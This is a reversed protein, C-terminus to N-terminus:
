PALRDIHWGVNAKLTYQFRDHLRNLHGQWFEFRHPVVRFGGWFPPCPVEKGKYLSELRAYSEELTKRSDLVRSQQSAWASLQSARPRKAFYEAAEERSTKEVLGEISVQREIEKWLFTLSARTNAALQEAKRSEYNTFFVLGQYDIKKLLVTRSSPAGEDSATALVMANPELIKAKIAESLWLEFQDFPNNALNELSLPNSCYERRLLGLPISKNSRSM